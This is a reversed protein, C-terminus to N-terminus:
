HLPPSAPKSAPPKGSRSEFYDAVQYIRLNLQRMEDLLPQYPKYEFDVIGKNSDLNSLEAHPDLPDNDQYKFWHWGVCKGSEILALVFNQYFIGRDAQSHVLWGAGTHNPLGSDEAKVYFETIMFPKGAEHEWMTMSAADPVWGSYYNISVADAYRGVARFLAPEILQQSTYRCGLYMHNPDHKHISGVVIRFYRDAEFELFASRLEDTVKVANHEKMWARAAINGPDTEPLLLFNDLNKRYLPIENDSFYGLLNPDSSGKDIKALYQDAFKEFEPDFVFITDKPYGQHGSVAYTGGRHAGYASMIDLNVTYALPHSAQLPSKNLFDPNSWAGAGHIGNQLLMEHTRRMWEVDDGFTRTLAAKNRESFGPKLEVVADHLYLRGLPDIIWWRGNVQLTRFFGTATTARDSRGGYPDENGDAPDALPLALKQITRVPYTTWDDFEAKGGPYLIKRAMIQTPSQAVAAVPILIAVLPLFSIRMAVSVIVSNRLTPAVM